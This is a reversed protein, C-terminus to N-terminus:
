INASGIMEKTPRRERVLKLKRRVSVFMPTTVAMLFAGVVISDLNLLASWEWGDPHNIVPDSPLYRIVLHDSKALVVGNSRSFRTKGSYSKGQVTFAYRLTEKDGRGLTLDTVDGITLRGNARLAARDRTQQISDVIYWGSFTAGLLFFISLITLLVVGLQEDSDKSMPQDSVETEM